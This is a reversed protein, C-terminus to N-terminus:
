VGYDTHSKIGKHFRLKALYELPNKPTVLAEKDHSLWDYLRTLLFRMAAGMTLIPLADLEEKKLHRIKEYESFMKKVKTVNLDSNKEFCWANICVSLDYMLFDHCAFYFDIIGVLKEGDFFVNDPFMDGHVIGDPLNDPWNKSLFALEKEIESALGPKVEDARSKVKDFLEIWSELSFSNKIKGPYDDAAIHMKAMYKGLEELHYNQIQNVGKGNLFSIITSPKGSISSILQNDHTIIPTPCPINKQALHQMLGLYFPLDERKVRKEFITLVYKNKDTTLFYNSNEVGSEIERLAKLKGISYNALLSDLQTESVKTYVAM